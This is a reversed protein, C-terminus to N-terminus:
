VGFVKVLILGMTVSLVTLLLVLTAVARGSRRVSSLDVTLGLAAMAVITLVRSVERIADGAGASIVGVTRLLAFILFGSVFWPIANRLRFGTAPQADTAITGGSQRMASRAVLWAAGAVVPGIALVRLLKVLSGIDGSETSVAFSAAVVQPVAYVTLGALVGYEANTLGFIPATLPLLLVVAVSLAATLAIASAIEQRTARLVPAIAAIASNGCIANGVAVLSSLRRGLGLREGMVIGAGLVVGVTLVVYGILKLGASGLDTFSLSAGLLVIALELLGKSAYALGPEFPVAPRWRLRILMGAILAIVLAEVVTIGASDLAAGALWAAAALGVALALGPLRVRIWALWRGPLNM